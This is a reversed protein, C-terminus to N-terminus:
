KNKTTVTQEQNEIEEKFYTYYTEFFGLACYHRNYKEEKPFSDLLATLERSADKISPYGKQHIMLKENLYNAFEVLNDLSAIRQSLNGVYAKEFSKICQAVPKAMIGLKTGLLYSKSQRIEMIINNIQLKSLFYFHYAYTLFGGKGNRIGYETKQILAPLLLDDFCYNDKYILPLIKLLHSTYKKDDFLMKLAFDITYKYNLETKAKGIKKNVRLLLNQDVDTMELLDAGIPKVYQMPRSFIIDFKKIGDIEPNIFPEAFPDTDEPKPNKFDYNSIKDFYAIVGKATLNGIPLMNIVIEGNSSKVKYKQQFDLGYFLDKVDEISKFTKNKFANKVDFNVMREFSEKGALTRTLFTNLSIFGDNDQVYKSVVYNEIEDFLQTEFWTKGSFNFHIYCFRNEEFLQIINGMCSEFSQRFSQFKSDAISNADIKGRLFSNVQLSKVNNQPEGLKFFDPYAIDGFLYKVQNDAEGTKYKLYYFKNSIVTQDNVEHLTNYDIEFNDKVDIQYYSYPQRASYEPAKKIYRHYQLSEEKSLENRIKHGIQIITQLSM